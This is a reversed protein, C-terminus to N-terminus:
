QVGSFLYLTFIYIIALFNHLSHFTINSWINDTKYYIKAFACGLMSYPIIYLLEILSSAVLLHLSGFILGSIIIFVYQNKFVDKLTKRTILEEIIPAILVLSIISSIPSSLLIQRNVEENTPM